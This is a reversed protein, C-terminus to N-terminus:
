VGRRAPSSLPIASPRYSNGAVHGNVSDLGYSQDPGSMDPALNGTRCDGASVVNHDTVRSPRFRQSIQHKFQAGSSACAGGLLRGRSAIKHDYRDRQLGDAVNRDLGQYALYHDIGVVVVRPAIAANRSEIIVARGARLQQLGPQAPGVHYLREVM